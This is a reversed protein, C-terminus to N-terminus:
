PVAPLDWLARRGAKVGHRRSWGANVELVWRSPCGVSRSEDNLVPANEVIGVILGDDDVFIMDLPICTNHMWFKHDDRERLDFLMGDDEALNRRYMLGRTTDHQSRVLEASVAGTSSEPFVVRVRPLRSPNVEPDAPCGIEPNAPPLRPPEPPTRQVCRGAPLLDIDAPPHKAPADPAARSDATRAFEEPPLRQCQLVGVVIAIAPLVRM